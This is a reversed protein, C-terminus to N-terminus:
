HMYSLMDVMGQLVTSICHTAFCLHQQLQFPQNQGVVLEAPAQWLRQAVQGVYARSTSNGHLHHANM